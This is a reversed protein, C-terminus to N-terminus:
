LHLLGHLILQKIEVSFSHGAEKAQAAAREVSIVVDGLNSKNEGEFSAAQIPFSLVDTPYDKARFRQNLKTIAADSVFVITADQDGRGIAELAEESFKRWQSANIKRTRQRNVIEIM